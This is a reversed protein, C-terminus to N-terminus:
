MQRHIKFPDIHRFEVRGTRHSIVIYANIELKLANWKKERKMEKQQTQDIPARNNARRNSVKTPIKADSPHDLESCRIFRHM